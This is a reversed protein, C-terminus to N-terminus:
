GCSSGAVTKGDRPKEESIRQPPVGTESRKDARV